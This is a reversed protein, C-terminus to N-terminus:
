RVLMCSPTSYSVQIQNGSFGAPVTYLFIISFVTSWSFFLGRVAYLHMMKGLVDNYVVELEDLHDKLADKALRVAQDNKRKQEESAGEIWLIHERLTGMDAAM